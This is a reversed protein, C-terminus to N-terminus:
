RAETETLTLDWTPLRLNNELFEVPAEGGEISVEIFTEDGPLALSSMSIWRRSATWFSVMHAANVADASLTRAGVQIHYILRHSLRHTYIRRRLTRGSIVEVEAVDKLALAEIQRTVPTDAGDQYRFHVKM